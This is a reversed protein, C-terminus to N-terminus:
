LKKPEDDFTIKGNKPIQIPDPFFCHANKIKQRFNRNSM